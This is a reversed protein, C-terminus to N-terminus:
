RAQAINRLLLDCADRTTPKACGISVRGGVLTILAITGEYCSATIGYYSRSEGYINVTSERGLEETSCGYRRASAEFAPLVDDRDVPETEQVLWWENEEGRFSPRNPASNPASRPASSSTTCSMLLMAFAWASTRIM